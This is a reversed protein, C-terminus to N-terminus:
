MARGPIFYDIIGYVVAGIVAGMLTVSFGPVFFQTAYIIVAAAIFGVVGRGFPRANVGTILALLYDMITLVVAGIILPGIGAITFGPTFFATLGLVLTAAVLRIVVETIRIDSGAEDRNRVKENGEM